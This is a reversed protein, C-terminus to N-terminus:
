PKEIAKSGVVSVAGTVEKKRQTGYGVVVVEDLNPWPRRGASHTLNRVTDAVVVEKTVYGIYSVTLTSGIEVGALLSTVM